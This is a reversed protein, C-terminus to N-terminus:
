TILLNYRVLKIHNHLRDCIAPPPWLTMIITLQLLCCLLPRIFAGPLLPQTDDGDIARVEGTRGRISGMYCGNMALNLM